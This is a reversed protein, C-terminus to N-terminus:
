KWGNIWQQYRIINDINEVLAHLEEIHRQTEDDMLDLYRQGIRDYADLVECIAFKLQMYFGKMDGKKVFMKFCEGDYLFENVDPEEPDGHLVKPALEKYMLSFENAKVEFESLRRWYCLHDAVIIGVIIVIIAIFTAM